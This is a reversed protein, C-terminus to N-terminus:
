VINAMNSQGACILVLNKVGTNITASRASLASTGRRMLTFQSITYSDDLIFPDPASIGTTM